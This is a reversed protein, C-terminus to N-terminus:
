SWACRTPWSAVSLTCRAPSGCRCRAASRSRRSFRLSRTPEEVVRGNRTPIPDGHPDRAPDGLKDAILEELEGSLGHELLEAQDHVRDWSMGLAEALFLELVRHRRLVGLARRRGSETLRAGRYRVREVLGAEDLERLMESASSPAVGLREALANTKVVGTGRSELKYITKLYDEMTSSVSQGKALALMRKRYASIKPEGTRDVVQPATYRHASWPRTGGMEGADRAVVLGAGTDTGSRTTASVGAAVRRESAVGV